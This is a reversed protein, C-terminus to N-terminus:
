SLANAEVPDLHRAADRSLNTVAVDDRVATIHEGPLFVHGEFLGPPAITVGRFIDADPDAVV